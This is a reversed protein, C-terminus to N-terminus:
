DAWYPSPTGCTGVQALFLKGSDPYQELQRDTLESRATTILLLDLDDGVFAVSSTHPAPVEVVTLLHGSTTYCRVQGSGWVAVWLNGDVDVCLGDPYEGDFRLLARRTGWVGSDPYYPRAWIVKSLTDTNYFVDGVPSWGLGNSLALDTDIPVLHSGRLQFLGEENERADLALTGVMFRGAPDCKGDNLRSKTGTEIVRPGPTRRGATDLVTLTEQEAVLLRGDAAAAVASVTGAFRHVATCEIATRGPVVRGECVRHGDIDVWLVRRRLPDWAPGEALLYTETSAVTASVSRM